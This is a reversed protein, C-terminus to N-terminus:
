EEICRKSQLDEVILSCADSDVADVVWEPFLERSETSAALFDLLSELGM